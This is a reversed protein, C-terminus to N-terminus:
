DESIAIVISIIISPTSVYQLGLRNRLCNVREPNLALSIVYGIVSSRRAEEKQKKESGGRGKEDCKMMRTQMCLAEKGKKKLKLEKENGVRTKISLQGIKEEAHMGERRGQFAERKNKGGDHM